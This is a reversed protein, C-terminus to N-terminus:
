KTEMMCIIYTKRAECSATFTLLMHASHLIYAEKMTICNVEQKGRVTWLSHTHKNPFPSLYYFKLHKIINNTHGPYSM